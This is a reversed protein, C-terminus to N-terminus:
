FQLLFRIALILYVCITAILLIIGFRRLQNMERKEFMPYINM